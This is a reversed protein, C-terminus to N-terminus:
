SRAVVQAHELRRRWDLYDELDGEIAPTRGAVFWCQRSAATHPNRRGYVLWVDPDGGPRREAQTAVRTTRYTRKLHQRITSDSYLRNATTTM